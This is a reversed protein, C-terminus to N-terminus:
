QPNPTQGTTGAPPKKQQMMMGSGMRGGPRMGRMMTMHAQMHDVFQQWIDANDLLATKTNPDQVKEADARMKAIKTKLDQMETQMQQMRTNMNSMSQSKQGPGMKMGSSVGTTQNGSQAPQSNQAFMGSCALLVTGITLFFKM